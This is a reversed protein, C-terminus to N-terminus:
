VRAEKNLYRIGQKIPSGMREFHKWSDRIPPSSHINVPEFVLGIISGRFKPTHTFYWNGNIDMAFVKNPVQTLNKSSEKVWYFDRLIM